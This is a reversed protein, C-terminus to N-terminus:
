SQCPTSNTIIKPAKFLAVHRREAGCTGHACFMQDFGSLKLAARLTAGLLGRFGNAASRVLERLLVLLEINAGSCFGRIRKKEALALWLPAAADSARGTRDDRDTPNQSRADEVSTKAIMTTPPTVRRVSDPRLMVSHRGIVPTRGGRVWSSHTISNSLYM